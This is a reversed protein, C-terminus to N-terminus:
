ASRPSVIVSSSSRRSSSQRRRGVPADLESSAGRSVDPPEVRWHTPPDVIRELLDRALLGNAIDGSQLAQPDPVPADTKQAVRVRPSGHAARVAERGPRDRSIVWTITEGPTSAGTRKSVRSTSTLPGTLEPCGVVSLQLVPRRSRPLSLRALERAMCRAAARRPLPRRHREQGPAPVRARPKATM